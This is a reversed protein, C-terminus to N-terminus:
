WVGELGALISPFRAIVEQATQRVLAATGEDLMGRALGDALEDEDLLQSSGDPFLWVDLLLDRYEIADPRIRVRDCLHVYYGMLRGDPGTLKWVIYPLGEQYYALTRTGPAFVVQIPRVRYSRDSVYSVVVRDGGHWVLRCQFTQDPKNLNHKIETIMTSM